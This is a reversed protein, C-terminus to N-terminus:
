SIYYVIQYHVPKVPIATIGDKYQTSFPIVFDLEKQDIFM